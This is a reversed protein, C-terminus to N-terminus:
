DAGDSRNRAAVLRAMKAVEVRAEELQEHIATKLERITPEFETSDDPLLVVKHCLEVIRQESAPKLPM